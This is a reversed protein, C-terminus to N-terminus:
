WPRPTRRVSPADLLKSTPSTSSPLITLDGRCIMSIREELTRSVQESTFTRRYTGIRRDTRRLCPLYVTKLFTALEAVSSCFSKEEAYVDDGARVASRITEVFAELEVTQRKMKWISDKLGNCPYANPNWSLTTPGWRGTGLVILRSSARMADRMARGRPVVPGGPVNGPTMAIASHTIDTRLRSIQTQALLNLSDIEDQIYPVSAPLSVCGTVGLLSRTAQPLDDQVSSRM